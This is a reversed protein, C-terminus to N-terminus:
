GRIKLKIRLNSLYQAPDVQPHRHLYLLHMDIFPILGDPYKDKDSSYGVMTQYRPNEQLAQLASRTETGTESDYINVPRHGQRKTTFHM